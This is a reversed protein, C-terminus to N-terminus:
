QFRKHWVVFYIRNHRWVVTALLGDERLFDYGHQCDVKEYNNFKFYRDRIAADWRRFGQNWITREENWSIKMWEFRTNRSSLWQSVFERIPLVENGKLEIRVCDMALFTEITIWFAQKIKLHDMSFQVFGSEFGSNNHLNLRLFKSVQVRELVYKLEDVPIHHNTWIRLEDCKTIGFLQPFLNQNNDSLIYRAIPLRFLNQVYDFAVKM